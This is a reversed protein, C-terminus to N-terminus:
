RDPIESFPIDLIEYLEWDKYDFHWWEGRNVTYGEAEMAGRLLDRLALAAPEGGRFSPSARITFEDYDSPMEVEEGSELDFLSLDVACGRNHKSGVSPDAVFKRQEEDSEDWFKKTISWPRYGDFVLLGYGSRTLKRQVRVLAEAAPRQLFARAEDYLARRMFNNGTAYRIDLHITSDLATIEVLDPLRVTQGVAPCSLVLCFALHRFLCLLRHSSPPYTARSFLTDPGM